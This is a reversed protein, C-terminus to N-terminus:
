PIYRPVRAIDLSVDGVGVRPDVATLIEGREGNIRIVKLGPPLIPM